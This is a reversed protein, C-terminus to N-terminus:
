LHDSPNVIDYILKDNLFKGSTKVILVVHQSSESIDYTM